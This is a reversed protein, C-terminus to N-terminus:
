PALVDLPPKLIDEVAILIKDYGFLGDIFFLLENNTTSDILMDTIHMVYMDKTTAANLDRFDVFVRLKGSKKMIPVINELCHVYKTPGIFKAKM